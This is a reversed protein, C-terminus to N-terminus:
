KEWHIALLKQSAPCTGIKIYKSVQDPHWFTLIVILVVNQQNQDPDLSNACVFNEEQM